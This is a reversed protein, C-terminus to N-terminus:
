RAEAYRTVREYIEGHLRRLISEQVVIETGVTSSLYTAQTPNTFESYSDVEGGEPDLIKTPQLITIDGPVSIGGSVGPLYYDFQLRSNVVETRVDRVTGRNLVQRFSITAFDTIEDVKFNNVDDVSNVERSVQRYFTFGNTTDNVYYDITLIDGASYGHSTVTLTHEGAAVSSGSIPKWQLLVNGNLGPLRYAYSEYEDRQSPIQMYIRTWEVVDAGIPRLPTEEVFYFDTLGSETHDDATETFDTLAAWDDYFQRLDVELRQTAPDQPFPFSYRPPNIRVPTEFNSTGSGDLIAPM